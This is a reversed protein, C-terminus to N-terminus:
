SRILKTLERLTPAGAPAGEVVIPCAHCKGCKSCGPEPEIRDAPKRKQTSIKKLNKPQRFAIKIKKGLAKAKENRVLCKKAERLWSYIPPNGKNHTFILRIKDDKKNKQKRNKYILEKQTNKKAESFKNEIIKEPYNRSMLKSKLDDLHQDADAPNTCREIIRLAQGFIIGEKCPEPHNSLFDM